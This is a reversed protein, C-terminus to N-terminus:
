SPEKRHARVSAPRGLVIAGAPVDEIVWAGAGVIAGAGIRVGPAIEARMGIWVDDGVEIPEEPTAELQAGAAILADAGIRLPGRLRCDPGVFGDPGLELPGERADLLARERLVTRAGVEVPGAMDVAECRLYPAQNLRARIWALAAARIV